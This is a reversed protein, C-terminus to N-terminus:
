LATDEEIVGYKTADGKVQHHQMRSETHIASYLSMLIRIIKVNKKSHLLVVELLLNLVIGAKVLYQTIQWETLTSKM